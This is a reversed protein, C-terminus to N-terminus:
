QVLEGTLGSEVFELRAKVTGQGMSSVAAHGGSASLHKDLLRRADPLGVTQAFAAVGHVLGFSLVIYRIRTM